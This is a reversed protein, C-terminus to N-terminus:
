YSHYIQRIVNMKKNRRTQHLRNKLEIFHDKRKDKEEQTVVREQSLWLMILKLTSVHDFNGERKYNILEDILRKSKLKYCNNYLVGDVEKYPSNLWNTILQECHVGLNPVMGIGVEYKSSSNRLVKSIAESPHPQLLHYIGLRKCYRVFDPIDTEPMVKAGYYIALKIAADHIDETNNTRMICEAVINDQMNGEWSTNDYGKYVLISGMSPGWKDDKVPDYGIKYLSNTYTPSPRTDVPHEYIIMAGSYNGQHRELSTSLIPDLVRATDRYWKVEKRDKDVFELTGIDASEAWENTSDLQAAREKLDNIPFNSFHSTLFMESPVRPRSMLEDNIVMSTSAKRAKERLKELHKDAAILDTNGKENKYQNLAYYAPIFLGTKETGSEFPNDFGVFDYSTPDYFVLRSDQITEMNGGTGIAIVSGFRDVGDSLCLNDAGITAIFNRFLGIEEKVMVTYRSGVAVQPNDVTYIGHYIASKSGKDVWIGGERAKYLHRFATKKNNPDLNGSTNKFFYSPRFDAGEGWSGPMNNLGNKFFSLLESSKDSAFAGVFISIENPKNLYDYDYYKHGDFVFEHGIIAGSTFFSKGFNRSGLVQLNFSPNGWIARGMPKDFTRKLYEFPHIYKKRKGEFFLNDILLKKYEDSLNYGTTFILDEDSLSSNVASNCTYENDFEFGSFGRAYAWAYSLIWEVDRLNPAMRRRAKGVTQIITWMNIYFYLNGPCWRYGGLNREPDYDYGWKGEICFKEQEEWYQTYKFSDPHINPHDRQVFDSINYLEPFLRIPENIM